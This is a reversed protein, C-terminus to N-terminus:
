LEIKRPFNFKAGKEFLVKQIFCFFFVFFPIGCYRLMGKKIDKTVEDGATLRIEGAFCIEGAFHIEMWASCPAFGSKVALSALWLRAPLMRICFPCFSGSSTSVYKSRTPNNMAFAFVILFLFFIRTVSTDIKM